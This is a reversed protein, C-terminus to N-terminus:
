RAMRWSFAAASASIRDFRLSLRAKKCPRIASVPADVEEWVPLFLYGRAAPADIVVVAGAAVLCQSLEFGHLWGSSAEEAAVRTRRERALHLRACPLIAGEACGNPGVPRDCVGPMSEYISTSGASPRCTQTSQQLRIVLLAPSGPNPRVSPRALFISPRPEQLRSPRRFYCGSDNFTPNSRFVLNSSAVGEKALLHEVM